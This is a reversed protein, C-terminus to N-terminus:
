RIGMMAGLIGLGAGVLLQGWTHHGDYHRAWMVVLVLGYVWLYKLGFTSVILTALFANVGAHLSIKWFSTIVAFTIGTLWFTFLTRSLESKGLEHALWVGGLHCLMTFLYIPLREKRERIDWSSVQKNYLMTLFFIFPVVADIFLILGLFRWRLGEKVAIYVALLVALLIEHPPDFVRSIIRALIVLNREKRKIVRSKIM